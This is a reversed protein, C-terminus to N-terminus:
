ALRAVYYTQPCPPNYYSEINLFFHQYFLSLSYLCKSGFARRDLNSRGVHYEAEGNVEVHM